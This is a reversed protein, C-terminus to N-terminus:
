NRAAVTVDNVNKKRLADIGAEIQACDAIRGVVRRRKREAGIVSTDHEIINAVDQKRDLWKLVHGSALDRCRSRVPIEHIRSSGNERVLSEFEDRVGIEVDPPRIDGQNLLSCLDAVNALRDAIGFRLEKIGYKQDVM